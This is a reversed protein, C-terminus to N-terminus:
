FLEIAGEIQINDILGQAHLREYSCVCDRGSNKAYYLAEDARELVIHPLVDRSMRALGVSLTVKGVQPFHCSALTGRFRDLAILVDQESSCTFVGVFEEGGFRFLLDNERFTEVMLHSLLLLVEDGILHGFNDNIRKFFDIDFIALFHSLRGSEALLLKSMSVDFTKRNLLGTLADRENEAILNAYHYFMVLLQKILGLLCRDINEHQIIVAAQKYLQNKKLPLVLWLGSASELWVHEDNRQELTARIQACISEDLAHYIASFVQNDEHMKAVIERMRVVGIHVPSTGAYANIGEILLSTLAVDLDFGDRAQLLAILKQLLTNLQTKPMYLQYQLGVTFKVRSIGNWNM